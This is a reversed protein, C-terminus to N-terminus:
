RSFSVQPAMSLYRQVFTRLSAFSPNLRSELPELRRAFAQGARVGNKESACSKSICHPLDAPSLKSMGTRPRRMKLARRMRRRLYIGIQASNESIPLLKRMMERLDRLFFRRRVFPIELRAVIKRM